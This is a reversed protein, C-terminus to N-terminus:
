IEPILIVVLVVVVVVWIEEDGDEDGADCGGGGREGEMVCRRCWLGGWGVHGRWRGEGMIVRKM